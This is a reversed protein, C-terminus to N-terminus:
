KQFKFKKTKLAFKKQPMKPHKYLFHKKKFIKKKGFKNVFTIKM